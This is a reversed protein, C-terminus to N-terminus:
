EQNADDATDDELEEEDDEEDYYPDNEYDDEEDEEEEDDEEGYDAEPDELELRLPKLTTAGMAIVQNINEISDLRNGGPCSCYLPHRNWSCQCAIAQPVDYVFMSSSWIFGLYRDAKKAAIMQIMDYPMDLARARMDRTLSVLGDPSYYTGGDLSIKWGDKRFEQEIKLRWM